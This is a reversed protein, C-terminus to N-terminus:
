VTLARVRMKAVHKERAVFSSRGHDNHLANVAKTLKEMARVEIQRIRERSVDFVQALDELTSPDDQLRRARVIHEERETLNAVSFAERLLNKRYQEETVDAVIDEPSAASEDSIFDQIEGSDENDNQVPANLSQMMQMRMNMEQVKEPKCGLAEAVLQDRLVGNAAIHPHKREIDRTVRRLNFFMRKEEASTGIKILSTGKIIQEQITARIWWSAYTSLRFGKEPEFKEIARMLGISGEQILDNVPFGYGKYKSAISIVLRMHSNVLKHYASQDHTEHFRQALAYEEDHTLYPADKAGKYFDAIIEYQNGSM